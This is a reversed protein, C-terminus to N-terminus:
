ALVEQLAEELESMSFPKRLVRYDGALEIVSAAHSFASVYLLGIDPHRAIAERAVERGDDPGLRLDIIALDFEGTAFLRSAEDRSNATAVKCGRRELGSAMLDALGADDDVVCIRRGTLDVYRQKTLDASDMASSTEQPSETDFLKSESGLHLMRKGFEEARTMARDLPARVERPIRNDSIVLKISGLTANLNEVLFQALQSRVSDREITRYRNTNVVEDQEDYYEFVVSLSVTGYDRTEVLASRSWGVFTEGDNRRFVRFQEFESGLQGSKGRNLEALFKELHETAILESITLTGLDEETIRFTRLFRSNAFLLRQDNVGVVVISVPLHSLLFEADIM